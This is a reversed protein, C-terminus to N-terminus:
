FAPAINGGCTGITGGMKFTPPIGTTAGIGIGTALGIIGDCTGLGTDTNLGYLLGIFGKLGFAASGVTIVLRM